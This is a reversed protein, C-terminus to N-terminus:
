ERVRPESFLMTSLASGGHGMLRQVAYVAHLKLQNRATHKKLTLDLLNHAPGISGERRYGAALIVRRCEIWLSPITKGAATLAQEMADLAMEGQGANETLSTGTISDDQPHVMVRPEGHLKRINGANLILRTGMELDDWLRCRENWGGAQRTTTTRVTYRQTAITSHFIHARLLNKDNTGKTETWGDPDMYAVDFYLMDTDPHMALEDHIRSMHDPRMEDDSDFFMVYETGVDRLGRNRAAAAGPTSESLITINLEPDTHVKAWETVTRLTSDTSDNDVIILNFPRLTQSFISDLTRTVLGARNRVPVVVTILPKANM